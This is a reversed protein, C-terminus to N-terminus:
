GVSRLPRAGTETAGVTLDQLPAEPLLRAGITFGAGVPDVRVVEAHCRLPYHHGDLIYEVVVEIRAGVDYSREAVFSLGGASLDQTTAEQGDVQVPMAAVYRESSRREERRLLPVHITVGTAPM